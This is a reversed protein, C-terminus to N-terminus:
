ICQIDYYEDEGYRIVIDHRFLHFRNSDDHMEREDLVELFPQYEIQSAFRDLVIQSAKLCDARQGTLLEELHTM